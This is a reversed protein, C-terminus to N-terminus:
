SALDDGEAFALHVQLDSGLRGAAFLTQGAEGLGSNAVLAKTM